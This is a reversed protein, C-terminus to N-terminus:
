EKHSDFALLARALNLGAQAVPRSGSAGGDAITAALSVIRDWESTARGELDIAAPGARGAEAVALQEVFERARHTAALLRVRGTALM